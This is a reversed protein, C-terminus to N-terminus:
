QSAGREGPGFMDAESITRSAFSPSSDSQSSDGHLFFERGGIYVYYQRRPVGGDRLLYRFPRNNQLVRIETGILDDLYPAKNLNTVRVDRAEYAWRLNPDRASPQTPVLLWRGNIRLEGISGHLSLEQPLPQETAGPVLEGVHIALELRAFVDSPDIRRGEKQISKLLELSEMNAQRIQSWSLLVLLLGLSIFLLGKGTVEKKGHLQARIVWSWAGLLALLFAVVEVLYPVSDTLWEFM